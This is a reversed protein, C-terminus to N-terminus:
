EGLQDRLRRLEEEVRSLREELSALRDASASARPAAIVPEGGQAPEPVPALTHAWREEKQGPRRALRVVLPRSRESLNELIEEVAATSIFEHMRESRGRLEGVTQPGRLMLLTLVAKEARGIRLRYDLLHEFRSARSGTLERILREDRLRELAESVDNESLEMVPERNSKQNGAALLANMTLPYYEPTTQQKELLAGLVRVEVEDLQRLEPPPTGDDLTSVSRISM